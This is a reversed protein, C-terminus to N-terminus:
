AFAGAALTLTYNRVDKPWNEIQDMFRQKDGAYLARTAEEFGPLDGAIAAMFQNSCYQSQRIREDSSGIKRAQDVLRRLMASAGGGQQDLWQWHRPLLTVERGVVGLRPRGRLKPTNSIQPETAGAEAQRYRQELDARSGSSDIDIQQGTSDQFILPMRATPDALHTQVTQAVTLLDGTTVLQYDIFVSYDSNSNM